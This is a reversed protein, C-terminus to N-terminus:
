FSAFVQLDTSLESESQGAQRGLEQTQTAGTKSELLRKNRSLLIKEVEKPSTHLNIEKDDRRQRVVIASNSHTLVGEGCFQCHLRDGKSRSGQYHNCKHCVQSTYAANVETIKIKNIYGKFTIREQIYGKVWGSMKHRSKKSYRNKGKKPSSFTLQEVVVEIPREGEIFCDLSQNIMSKFGEKISGKRRDMKKSGLNNKRVRDAKAQNGDGELKRVLKWLPARKKGQETVTDTYKNYLKNIGDGYVNGNSSAIVNEYNKDIGVVRDYDPNIVGLSEQSYDKQKAEIQSHLRIRNGDIIVRISKDFRVETNVPIRIRKGSTLGQILISDGDYDYMSTDILFSRGKHSYPISRKFQRVTRRLLGNLYYTNLEPYNIKEPVEFPECNLVSYLLSKAKLIYNLYHLEHDSLTGKNRLCKKVGILSNSWNSKIGSIADDLASKWYRAPLGFNYLDVESIEAVIKDRIKQRHFFIDSYSAIGSYRSYFYNVVNTYKKAILNLEELQEKAISNKNYQKITRKM